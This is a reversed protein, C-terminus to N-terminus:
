PGRPAEVLVGDTLVLIEQAMAAAAADHTILLVARDALAALTDRLVAAAEVPDLHEVPEDLVVVRHGSLLVRALALRQRQGGSLRAGHSGVRTGLGDPLSAVWPGLGATVLAARVDEDTAGRRALRVNEGVTTDFLHADQALLGVATRVDDGSLAALEGGNMTLSGDYPLFRLLAMALTTKGSGSPGVLAVVRGPRLVFSASRVLPGASSPWRVQVDRAVLEVPGFPLPAPDAPDPCPDPADVVAFVRGASARARAGALVASPLAAVSEYAALPLLVVVALLVGDLRGSAVASAGAVLSGAVALGLTLAGLGTGAALALASRRGQATAEADADRVLALARDAAGLAILDPASTIATVVEASLRGRAPAIRREASVGAALTIAPIVLGGVLLAVLLVLGAAPLIWWALAVSGAGVLLAALFPLVVRLSLDLGADVDGVLRTLLDGRRHEGLGAPAIRELRRYMRVRLGTLGRFAADHGVVREAYRAVGRGIGFARVGVIAVQLLLIPPMQSARSILYASTAALGVACALALAGLVAALLLRWRQARMAGLMRLVPSRLVPSGGPHM